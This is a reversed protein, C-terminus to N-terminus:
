KTLPPGVIARKVPTSLVILTSTEGFPNLRAILTELKEVSEVTVKLVFAAQGTVHHCELIEPLEQAMALFRTYQRAPTFLHIFAMIPWGLKTADVIARYGTILGAEELRRVRESVAPTSLGVRRGLERFSIRADEQLTRLLKLSTEDLLKALQLNIPLNHKM